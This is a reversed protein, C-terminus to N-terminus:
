EEEEEAKAEREEIWAELLKKVKRDEERELFRTLMWPAVEPPDEILKWAKIAAIRVRASKARLGQEGLLFRHAMESQMGALLPLILLAKRERSETVEDVLLMLAWAAPEDDVAAVEKAKRKLSGLGLRRVKELHKVVEPDTRMLEKRLAHQGGGRRLRGEPDILLVTPYGTIGLQRITAGSDDFLIPFPLDRGKWYREKCLELDSALDDYSSKNQRHFALIEFDKRRAEFEEYFDILHPM